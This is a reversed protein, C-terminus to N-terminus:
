NLDKTKKQNVTLKLTTKDIFEYNFATLQDNKFYIIQNKIDILYEGRIYVGSFKNSNNGDYWSNSYFNITYVNKNQPINKPKIKSFMYSNTDNSQAKEFSKKDSSFWTGIIPNIEKQPKGTRSYYFRTTSITEGLGSDISLREFILTNFDLTIIFNNELVIKKDYSLLNILIHNYNTDLTIEYPFEREFMKPSYIKYFTTVKKKTFVIKDAGNGHSIIKSSDNNNFRSIETKDLIWEGLIMKELPFKQWLEKNQSLAINSVFLVLTIFISKM